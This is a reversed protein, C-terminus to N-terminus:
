QADTSTAKSARESGAAQEPKSLSVSKASGDRQSKAATEDASALPRPVVRAGPRARLLGEVIVQDATSIAGEVVRLGGHLGRAKVQRFQVTNEADVILVYQGSQDTGLAREPILLAAPNKAVEIRMRVFMGPILQRDSNEFVGRIRMTGTAPDLGPDTYDITGPRTFETMGSLALEAPVNMRSGSECKATDSADSSASASAIDTQQTRLHPVQALDSESITAWVYIPEMKVITALVETGADSILNGIDVNSRSIRGDIPATMRCYSLELEADRVGIRASELKAESTLLSTEYTAEAQSLHALTSELEAQRSKLTAVATDMDADTAVKREFLNRIRQEEQTALDVQSRSLNVDARAVERTRSVTAEKLAAEAERLRTRAADLQIQFPEEDIVLLLQGQKVEAGEVFHRETLLGRVRARIEVTEMPQTMGSFELYETVPQKVPSAVTVEPPPPEVFANPNGCGGSILLLLGSTVFARMRLDGPSVLRDVSNVM